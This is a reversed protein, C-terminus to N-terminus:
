IGVQERFQEWVVEKDEPYLIYPSLYEDKKVEEM